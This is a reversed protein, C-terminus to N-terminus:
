CPYYCEQVPDFYYWCNYYPDWYHYRRHAVDWVGRTWHFDHGRYYHGGAFRIGHDYHATRAISPRVRIARAPHASAEGAMTMGLVGAALGFLIRKM